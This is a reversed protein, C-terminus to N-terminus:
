KGWGFLEGAAIFGGVFVISLVFVLVTIEPWYQQWLSPEPQEPTEDIEDAYDWIGFPDTEDM